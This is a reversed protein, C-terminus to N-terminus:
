TTYVHASAPTGRAHEALRMELVSILYALTSEAGQNENVRDPHLGDKCGGTTPDYLPVHLSNQGLFWRFARQAEKAWKDEGTLRFADLCASIMALVEVPQQDFKAMEKGKVYWGNSGVPAFYGEDSKQISALWELANLGAAAMDDRSMWQGTVILAQSLRANEYAVVNEFWPWDDAINEQYLKLLREALNARLTEVRTEGMYARMFEDIGLLCFAWARPSTFDSAAPLADKFLTTAIGQMGQQHSRGIVAGLAYVARAHSDESGEVELWRRDYSMFNRFRGIDRNFAHGVFAMYRAFLSRLEATDEYGHEELLAMLLLARANDDLCYGEDYNPVNFTAHQLLGTHDTMLKLHALNVQPLEAPRAALTKTHFAERIRKTSRKRAQEFTEMYRRAVYPWVMERGLQFARQQMEKRKKDDGLLENVADAISDPDRWPVLVGRGDALLEAAYWYPTSIVAKGSGVAYALTGSTIQEPKLYPTIYIDAAALFGKLEENSVFRNHFIVHDDVGLDQALHELSQRYTEGHHARINPHTAGVIIYVTEPHRELIKPLASIVNEIGKDPGLLGFTLLVKDGGVGLDDKYAETDELPADPIGHHILEMKGAPVNHVEQMFELGKESMVVLKESLEILEDMVERQHSNPERLITHLTTVVPMRLERLLALIHSGAKGGFIGYEHQVSVVDVNNINLFDAARRYSSAEREAVEFRVREPYNYGQELDNMALAFCDVNPFEAALAEALDATFTAIGCQRPVYNGIFGLRRISGSGDRREMYEKIIFPIPEAKSLLVAM